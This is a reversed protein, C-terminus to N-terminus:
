SAPRALRWAAAIALLMALLLAWRPDLAPAPPPPAVPTCLPDGAIIPGNATVLDIYFTGPGGTGAFNSLGVGVRYAGGKPTPCTVAVDLTITSYSTQQALGLFARSCNGGSPFGGGPLFDFLLGVRDDPSNAPDGRVLATLTGGQLDIVEPLCIRTNVANTSSLDYDIRLSQAGEGVITTELSRMPSGLTAPWAAQLAADDPYAEFDDVLVQARAGAAAGLGGVLVVLVAGLPAPRTARRM